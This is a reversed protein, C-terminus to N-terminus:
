RYKYKNFVCRSIFYTSEVCIAYCVYIVFVTISDDDIKLRPVSEFYHM